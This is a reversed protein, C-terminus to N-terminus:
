QFHEKRGFRKPSRLENGNSLIVQEINKDMEFMEFVAVRGRTGSPCEPTPDIQKVTKPFVIDKRFQAPLDNFQKDILVKISGEIPVDKGSVLVGALRQAVALVLTPAILYPDVGMDILRPIVGVADNTHITSFFM